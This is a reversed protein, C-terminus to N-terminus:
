MWLGFSYRLIHLNALSNYIYIICLCTHIVYVLWACADGKKGRVRRVVVCFLQNNTNERSPQSTTANRSRTLMQLLLCSCVWLGTSLCKKHRIWLDSEWSPDQKSRKWRKYICALSRIQRQASVDDHAFHKIYRSNVCVCVFDLSAFSFYNDCGWM